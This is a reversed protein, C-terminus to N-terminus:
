GSSAAMTRFTLTYEAATQDGQRLQFLRECGERGEPPHDFVARFLAMFRQYSGLEEEGREWIASDWELAWWTLLSIVM